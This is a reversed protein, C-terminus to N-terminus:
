FISWSMVPSFFFREPKKM